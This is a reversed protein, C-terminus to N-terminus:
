HEECHDAQGDAYDDPTLDDPHDEDRDAETPQHYPELARRDIDDM